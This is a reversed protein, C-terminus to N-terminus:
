QTAAQGLSKLALEIRIPSSSEFGALALVPVDMGCLRETTRELPFREPPADEPENLRAILAVDVHSVYDMTVIGIGRVEMLGAITAPPSAAVKGNMAEVHTYDDSVLRAGRDILRLALDSKGSGSEGMLLVGEDGIKVCTAHVTGAYDADAPRAETVSADNVSM